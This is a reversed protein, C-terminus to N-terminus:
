FFSQARERMLRVIEESAPCRAPSQCKRVFYSWFLEFGLRGLEEAEEGSVKSLEAVAVRLPALQKGGM